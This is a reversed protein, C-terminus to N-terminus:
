LELAGALTAACGDLDYDRARERAAASMEALRGRDDHLERLAPLLEADGDVLLGDVGPRLAPAIAPTDSGVVVVGLALCELVTQSLGLVSVDTRFPLAMVDCSRMLALREEEHLYGRFRIRPVSRFRRRLEETLPGTGAAVFDIDDHEAALAAFAELAIDAGKVTTFHNVFGFRLPREKPAPGVKDLADVDVAPPLPVIRGGLRAEFDQAIRPGGCLIPDYRRLVRAFAASPAARVNTAQLFAAPTGSGLSRRLVAFYPVAMRLDNIGSVVLTADPELAAARRGARVPFPFRVRHVSYGDLEIPGPGTGDADYSVVHVDYRDAMHRLLVRLFEVIGSIRTTPAAYKVVVVLRPRDGV